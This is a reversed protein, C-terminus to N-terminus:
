RLTKVATPDNKISEALKQASTKRKKPRRALIIDRRISLATLPDCYKNAIDQLEALLSETDADFKRAM